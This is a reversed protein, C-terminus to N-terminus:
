KKRIFAIESHVGNEGIEITCSKTNENIYQIEVPSLHAPDIKGEDRLKKLAYLTTRPDYPVNFAKNVDWSTHLDEIIYLGNSKIYPFLFGLSIQQQRMQHGGDDIIIDIQGTEKVIKALQERNAQDACFSKVRATQRLRRRKYDIGYLQAQTFYDQWVNISAGHLMGIEMFSIPKDKLEGLYKEYINLYGHVRSSKDTGYKLGLDNLIGM